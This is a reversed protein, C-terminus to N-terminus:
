IYGKGICTSCLKYNFNYTFKKCNKDIIWGSGKCLPCPTFTSEIPVIVEYLYEYKKNYRIETDYYDDVNDDIRLANTNLFRIISKSKSKSINNIKNFIKLM